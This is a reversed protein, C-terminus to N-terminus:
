ALHLATIRALTEMRKRRDPSFAGPHYCHFAMLGRPHLPDPSPLPVGFWSQTLLGSRREADTLRMGRAECAERADLYCPRGEFLAWGTLGSSPALPLPEASGPRGAEFFYPFRILGATADVQALYFGSLEFPKQCLVRLRMGAEEWAMGTSLAALVEQFLRREAEALVLLDLSREGPSRGGTWAELPRRLSAPLLDARGLAAARDLAELEARIGELRAELRAADERPGAATAGVGPSGEGSRRGLRRFLRRLTM